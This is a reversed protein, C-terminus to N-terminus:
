WLDFLLIEKKKKLFYEMKLNLNAHNIKCNKILKLKKKVITIEIVLAGVSFLWTASHAM